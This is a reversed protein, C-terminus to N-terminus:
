TTNVITILETEKFINYWRYFVSNRACFWFIFFIM